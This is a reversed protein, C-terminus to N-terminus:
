SHDGAVVSNGLGDLHCSIPGFTLFLFFANWEVHYDYGEGSSAFVVDIPDFLLREFFVITCCVEVISSGFSEFGFGFFNIFLFNLNFIILIHLGFGFGSIVLFWEPTTIIWFVVFIIFSRWRWWCLEVLNSVSMLWTLMLFNFYYFFLYRKM